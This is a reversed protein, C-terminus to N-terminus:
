SDDEVAILKVQIMRIQDSFEPVTLVKGTLIETSLEISKDLIHQM